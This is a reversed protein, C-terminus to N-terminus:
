PRGFVEFGGFEGIKEFAQEHIAILLENPRVGFYTILLKPPNAALDRAMQERAGPVLGLPYDYIYRSAARREALLYVQPESAFMYIPDDPQTRAKVFSAVEDAHAFYNRGDDGYLRTAQQAATTGILRINQLGFPAILLALLAIPAILGLSRRSGSRWLWVICPAALLALLPLVPYYYHVFARLSGLAAILLAVAWAAILWGPVASSSRRITSIGADDARLRGLLAVGGIATLLLPVFPAFMDVLGGLSWQARSEEAYITNYTWVGFVLDNWAGHLAFYAAIPLGVIAGGVIEGLLARGISRVSRRSALLVCPALVIAVPKILMAVAVAAGAFIAYRMLQTEYSRIACWLAALSPLVLAQDTNLILGQLDFASGAVAFILAALIATLRGWVRRGIAFVLLTDLVFLITTWIRIAATSPQGFILAPMYMVYVLPPKHDFADRYPLGDHLWTWAVFAYAGEDRELPMTHGPLRLLIATVIVGSLALLIPWSWGIATGRASSKAPVVTM